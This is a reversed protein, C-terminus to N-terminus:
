ESTRGVIMLLSSEDDDDSLNNIEQKALKRFYTYEYVYFSKVIRIMRERVQLRADVDTAQCKERTKTKKKQWHSLMIM